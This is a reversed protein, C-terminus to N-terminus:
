SIPLLSFSPRWSRYFKQGKEQPTPISISAYSEFHGSGGEHIMKLNDFLSDSGQGPVTNISHVCTLARNMEWGRQM